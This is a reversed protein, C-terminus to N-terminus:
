VPKACQSCFRADESELFGCSRCKVKVVERPSGFSFGAERLGGGAGRGWASSSHEVAGSTETAVLESVPKMFGFKLLISGVILFPMAVLSLIWYDVPDAGSQGFSAVRDRGALAFGIFGWFFLVVGGGTFLAGLVQCTRRAGSSMRTLKPQM